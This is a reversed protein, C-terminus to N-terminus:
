SGEPKARHDPPRVAGGHINLQMLFTDLSKGNKNGHGKLRRTCRFGLKEFFAVMAGNGPGDGIPAMMRRFAQRKCEKILAEMLLRGVGRGREGDAVYIITEATYYQAPRRVFAFGLVKPGNSDRVEAVLYPLGEDKIESITQAMIGRSPTEEDYTVTSNTVADDYITTIADVDTESVQRVLIDGHSM